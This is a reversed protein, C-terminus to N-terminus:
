SNFMIRKRLDLMRGKRLDAKRRKKLNKSTQQPYQIATRTLESNYQFTKILPQPYRIGIRMKENASREIQDSINVRM